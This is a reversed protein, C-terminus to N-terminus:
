AILCCVIWFIYMASFSSSCFFLFQVQHNYMLSYMRVYIYIYLDISSTHHGGVWLESPRSLNLKKQHYLHLSVAPRLITTMTTTLESQLHSTEGSNQVPNLYRKKGCFHYSIKKSICLFKWGCNHNHKGGSSVLPTETKHEVAGVGVGSSPVM